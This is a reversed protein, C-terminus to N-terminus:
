DPAPLCQPSAARADARAMRRNAVTRDAHHALGHAHRRRPLAVPRDARGGQRAELLESEGEYGAYTVTLRCAIRRTPPPIMEDWLRHARESTYGWLEDFVTITPNAGAAGAYDSAIATITSGTSGFTIKNATITADLSLLPSAEVIRAAATFVRGQSQEFDNACCYAEAYREGLVVIVYIVLMAAFATKGSKKIASFVLEPYRLRGDPTLEFAHALFEREADTLVFLAGTEPNVLTTEIFTAADM